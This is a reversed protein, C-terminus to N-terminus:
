NWLSELLMYSEPLLRKAIEGKGDDSKKLYVFEQVEYQEVPKDGIDRIFYKLNQEYKRITQPSFNLEYRAYELFGPVLESMNKLPKQDLGYFGSKGVANKPTKMSSFVATIVATNENV